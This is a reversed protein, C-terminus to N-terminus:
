LAVKVYCVGNAACGAIAKGVIDGATAEKKVTGTGGAVVTDGATVIANSADLKVFGETEIVVKEGVKADNAAIGVVKVSEDGAPGVTFDGTAEIVMGKTVDVSATIKTQTVGLAQPEQGGIRNGENVFYDRPM